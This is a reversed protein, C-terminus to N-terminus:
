QDVFLFKLMCEGLHTHLHIRPGYPGAGEANRAAAQITYMAGPNLPGLTINTSRSFVNKRYTLRPPHIRTTEYMVLYGTILGNQEFCDVEKLNLDIYNKGVSVVRIFPFGTPAIHPFPYFMHCSYESHNHIYYM